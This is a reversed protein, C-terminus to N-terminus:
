IRVLAVRFRTRQGIDSMRDVIQQEFHARLQAMEAPETVSQCIKEIAAVDDDTIVSFFGGLLTEIMRIKESVPQRGLAGLDTKSVWARVQDDDNFFGAIIGPAEHAIIKDRMQTYDDAQRIMTGNPGAVYMPTRGTWRDKSPDVPRPVLQEARFTTPMVYASGQAIADSIDRKSMEVAELAIRRNTANELRSFNDDGYAIWPADGRDNTVEVGYTNDLDHLIKSEVNGLAGQALLTERPTRLHGASFADTLFHDAAANIGWARNAFKPDTAAQQALMAADKHMMRWVDINRKGKSVNSFHSINKEALALYRGGTAEQLQSTTTGSSRILPILTVIETLPAIDLAEFPSHQGSADTFSGYFDGSLAVVEGYTLGRTAARVQDASAGMLRTRWAAPWRAPDGREPFDRDHARLTILATPGGPAAEGLAVHEFSDWRLLRRTALAPRGRALAIVRRGADPLSARRRLLRGVARNGATRQLALLSPVDGFGFEGGDASASAPSHAPAGVTDVQASEGDEVKEM